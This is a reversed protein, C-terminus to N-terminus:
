CYSVAPRAFAKFAGTGGSGPPTLRSSGLLLEVDVQRQRGDAARLVGGHVM